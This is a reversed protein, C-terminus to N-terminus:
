RVEFLATAICVSGCRDYTFKIDMGDNVLNRRTCAGPLHMVLRISFTVTKSGIKCSGIQLISSVYEEDHALSKKIQTVAIIIVSRRVRNSGNRHTPIM